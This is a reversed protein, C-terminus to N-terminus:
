FDEDLSMKENCKSISSSPLFSLFLFLFMSTLSFRQNSAKEYMGRNPNFRGGPYTGQSPILGMSKWDTPCCNLWSLKGAM